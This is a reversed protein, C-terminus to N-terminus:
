VVYVILRLGKYGIYFFMDKFNSLLYINYWMKM